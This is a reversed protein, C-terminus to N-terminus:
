YLRATSQTFVNSQMQKGDMATVVTRSPVNVIMAIDHLVVLTDQAGKAAADDVADIIKHLAEPQISIGRQKM